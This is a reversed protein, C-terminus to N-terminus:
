GHQRNRQRLQNAIEDPPDTRDVWVTLVEDTVAEQAPGATKRELKELKEIVDAAAKADTVRFRRKMEFPLEIIVEGM